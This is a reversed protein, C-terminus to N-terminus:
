ISWAEFKKLLGKIKFCMVRLTPNKSKWAGVVQKVVLLADGQICLRKVGLNLCVHLSAEMTLYEAENNSHSDIKLGKKCVLKGQPDYLAMGGLAADHSKRYSGDFLLVHAHNVEKVDEAVIKVKDEKILIPNEKYTLLNALTARTSEEVLFSFEFEQLEIVWKKVANSMNVGNILQPLFTYSTLFVFPRRLLYHRFRRCAFVVNVMVLEIESLAREVVTKVRSACYIPKM